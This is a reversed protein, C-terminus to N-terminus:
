GPGGEGDGDTGARALLGIGKRTRRMGTSDDDYGLKTLRRGFANATLVSKECQAGAWARYRAYLEASAASVARNTLCEDAIFRSVTDSEARWERTHALVNEPAALGGSQWALCGRVMWALIGPAEERLKRPLDRDERGEFSVSYPILRLRRWIGDDTGKVNPRHNTILRAKFQPHFRFTEQYLRNASVQDSGTARKILTENLRQGDGTESTTVLRVGRLDAMKNEVSRGQKDETFTGSAAEIAYEGFVYRVAEHETSKGAAGDGFCVALAHERVDGTLSYGYFRQNFARIDADPHVENQFKEWAPSVADAAYEVPSMRTILDERSHKRLQGTRLDLTGTACSFLYPDRDLDDISIVFERLVRAADLANAVARASQLRRGCELAAEGEAVIDRNALKLVRQLAKSANSALALLRHGRATLERAVTYMYENARGSTDVRWRRADWCLWGLGPVCRLDDGFQQLLRHANGLDTAPDVGPPLQELAPLEPFDVVNDDDAHECDADATRPSEPTAVDDVNNLHRSARGNTSNTNAPAMRPAAGLDILEGDDPDLRIGACLADNGDKIAPLTDSM